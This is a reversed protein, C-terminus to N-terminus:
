VQSVTTVMVQLMVINAMAVQLQAVMTQNYQPQAAPEVPVQPPPLNLPISPRHKRDNTPKTGNIVDKLPVLKQLLCRM